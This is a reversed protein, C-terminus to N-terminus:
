PNASAPPAIMEDTPMVDGVPVWGVVRWSGRVVVEYWGDRASFVVLRSDDDLEALVRAGDRPASRVVVGSRAPRQMPYEVPLLAAGDAPDRARLYAMVGDAIAAAVVDAQETMFARDTPNTLFGMELIVSPTTRAVAHVHRRYNFAYYGRMNITIADDRPLGTIDGYAQDLATMLAASARSTRWPTALKYGRAASGVVGDAHLAIFADADYAPPVTAPLVDVTVGQATLLAAARQAVDLNVEWEAVGGAFAGASTRLRELEDPLERSLWHGAQLGVRPATGAPRPTPTPQMIAGSPDLLIPKMLPRPAAMTSTVLLGVAILAAVLVRALHSSTM